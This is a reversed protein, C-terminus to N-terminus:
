IADITRLALNLATIDIKTSHSAFYRPNQKFDLQYVIESPLEGTVGCWTGGIGNVLHRYGQVFYGPHFLEV